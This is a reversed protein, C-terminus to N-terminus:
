RCIYVNAEYPRLVDSADPYNSLVRELEGATKPARRPKASLNMEVYYASKEGRRYYCFLDAAKEAVPEFSGYVLADKAEHRLAAAARYFNLPSDLQAQQAEANVRAYDGARIWPTEESFGGNKGATWQMPTRAHDRTGRAVHAFPAEDGEQSLERYRNLSEVDRLESVDAFDVNTMGLEQGQYIFPTGRGTLTAVAFLKSLEKRYVNTPDVKSVMRPNDHNEVFLTPWAREAHAGEYRLFCRKLHNLDYPHGEFRHHGPCDNHDFCFMTSLEGREPASLLKCMELGLGAAEGIAYADGLGEARLQRLFEHLRRGYFYHEIGRIHLLKSITESGDAYSTKSIINIVDLRFGDVGKSRWFAAIDCVERRVAPNEWNLDMQKSSFLHLAYEDRAEEYRWASGSFFSLWNNPPNGNEGKRWIYYDGYPGVPDSASARYWPHEDSSHNFVMDMIFRMGRKHLEAILRDFDAMEGFEAMIARYDRIDYGNDDNPSDCIPSMWVADVGLAQLYDLKEIVGALDGVGDGNGDKFSRPYIQYVVAEKWWARENSPAPEPTGEEQNCLGLLTDILTEDLMGGSLRALKRIRLGGILPTDSDIKVGAYQALANMLDRGIPNALLERIRSDKTLM